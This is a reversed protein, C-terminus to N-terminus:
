PAVASTRRKMAPCVNATPTYVFSASPLPLGSDPPDLRAAFESLPRPGRQGSIAPALGSLGGTRGIGPGPKARRPLGGAYLGARRMQQLRESGNGLFRRAVCGLNQA